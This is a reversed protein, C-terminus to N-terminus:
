TSGAPNPIMLPSDHCSSAAATVRSPDCLEAEAVIVRGGQLVDVTNFQEGVVGNRDRGLLDCLDLFHSQASPRESTSVHQWKAVFAPVTM